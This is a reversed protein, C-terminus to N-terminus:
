LYSHDDANNITFKEKLESERIEMCTSINTKYKNLNKWTISIRKHSNRRRLNYINGALEGFENYRKPFLPIFVVTWRGDKMIYHEVKLNNM